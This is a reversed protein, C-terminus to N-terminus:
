QVKRFRFPKSLVIGEIIASFRFDKQKAASVISRVEPGDFHEVGRGISFTLLKETLTGVFAEPRKMIAAEIGEVGDIETGDHLTGRSDIPAIDDYKRWRGLADYNELAFGVPDILSHCSACSPDARHLDLRERVTTAKLTSKEPLQTVNEPPPPPPTGFINELVWAGRITPSTRTAYSTVTLISGHRLLGGRNSDRPLDVKRFHSGVVGKIGYHKALRQNLFTYPTEILHLINKDNEVVDRFLNTTEGRFAHRLNDDFDPYLRLDPTISDLNRLYLWQSAFNEVLSNSKPDKLMRRVQQTLVDPNSLKNNEALQLLEEDPLSSWLFYSLRTALEIDPLKYIEGQKRDNPEEEIRFLFNPNILISTLALEIGAEFGNEDAAQKYFRMPTALDEASIPRRYARHMLSKLISEATEDEEDPSEPYSKFILKRAETNISHKGDKQDEKQEFPGVITIQFIAPTRRPHRHRNFRADFPQRKTEMLSSSNRQFTVGVNHSGATAKFRINLHADSLTFDKRDEPPKVTFRHVRNRDVLIDLKHEHHLGEVVEDRDRALKIDIEYEGSKPFHHVFSTGGRTGLPLGDVHEEQSRDAPLRITVGEPSELTTGIAARSIKEAM